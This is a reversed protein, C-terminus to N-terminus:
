NDYGRLVGVIQRGGSFRIRVEKDVWTKLKIVSPNYQGPETPKSEKSM